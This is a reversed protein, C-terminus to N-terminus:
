NREQGDAYSEWIARIERWDDDTLVFDSGGWLSYLDPAGVTPAFRAYDLMERRTSSVGDTDISVNPLATNFLRARYGMHSRASRMSHFYDHLRAQDVVDAFYPHGCSANVLADPKAEKAADHILQFMRKLLEIGYVGPEYTSLNIGLPMVNGFDLKFGDCDYCDPDSSLLNRITSKMRAQYKPNTPDAGSPNLWTTVCEEAPLGETNWMMFWLVVRRGKGHQWNVFGRLDPWKMPDPLAEGYAGQWKADVIIFAPHLGLSDLRDSFYTYEEQTALDQTALDQADPSLDDNRKRRGQDGWGCYIPGKWWGAQQGTNPACGGDRFHWKSYESLTEWEDNGVVGVIGPSEWAGDVSTYGLLDTELYFRNGAPVYAFSDFNYAGRRATLGFGMWPGADEVQFPFCLM